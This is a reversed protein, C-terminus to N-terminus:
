AGILLACASLKHATKSFKIPELDNKMTAVSIPDADIARQSLLMLLLVFAPFVLCPVCPEKKFISRYM